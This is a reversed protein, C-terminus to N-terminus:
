CCFALVSASRSYKPSFDPWKNLFVKPMVVARMSRRVCHRMTWGVNIAVGFRCGCERLRQGHYSLLGLVGQGIQPSARAVDRQDHGSSRYFLIPPLKVAIDAKPGFRVDRPAGCMDAKPPLASMVIASRFTQKQGFASM